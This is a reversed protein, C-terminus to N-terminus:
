SPIVLVNGSHIISPNALNNASAIDVWRYGDGYQAVAIDWLNDGHVVTYTGDQSATPEDQEDMVVQDNEMVEPSATAEAIVEAEPTSTPEITPEATPEPTKTEEMVAVEGSEGASADALADTIETTVDPIMITQGVEIDAPNEIGNAEMIDTWRFGDDYYTEAITWLSEGEAITHSTLTTEQETSDALSNLQGQDDINRFYNVVLLGVVVIVVFGLVTSISSEHTKIQKLINKLNM